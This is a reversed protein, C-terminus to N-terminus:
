HHWIFFHWACPTNPSTRADPKVPRHDVCDLGRQIGGHRTVTEVSAIKVSLVLLRKFARGFPNELFPLAALPLTM